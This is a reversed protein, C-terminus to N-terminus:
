GDDKEQPIFNPTFSFGIRQESGDYKVDVSGLMQGSRYINGSIISHSAHTKVFDFEHINSFDAGLSKLTDEMFQGYEKSFLEAQSTVFQHYSQRM